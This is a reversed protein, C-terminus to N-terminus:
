RAQREAHQAADHEWAVRAAHASARRHARGRHVGGRRRHGAYGRRLRAADRARRPSVRGDGRLPPAPQAGEVRRGAGLVARRAPGSGARADLSQERERAGRGGHAGARHARRPLVPAERLDPREAAAHPEHHAGARPCPRRARAASRPERPQVLRRVRRPAGGHHVQGVPAVHVRRRQAGHQAPDRMAECRARHQM